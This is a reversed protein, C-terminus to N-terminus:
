DKLTVQLLYFIVVVFNSPFLYPVVNPANIRGESPIAFYKHMRKDLVHLSVQLTQPLINCYITFGTIMKFEVQEHYDGDAARHLKSQIM